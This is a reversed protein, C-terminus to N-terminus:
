TRVLAVLFVIGLSDDLHGEKLLRMTLNRLPREHQDCPTNSSAAGNDEIGEDHAHPTYGMRTQEDGVARTTLRRDKITLGTLLNVTELARHQM